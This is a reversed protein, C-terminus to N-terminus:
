RHMFILLIYLNIKMKKLKFASSIEVDKIQSAGTDITEQIMKASVNAGESVRMRSLELASILSENMGGHSQELELLLADDSLRSMLPAILRKFAVFILCGAGLILMVLRQYFDMRFTKDILFDAIIIAILVALIYKLGDVIFYRQVGRRMRGLTATIEPPIKSNFKNSM